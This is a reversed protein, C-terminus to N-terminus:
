TAQELKAFAAMHLLPAGTVSSVANVCLSCKVTLQEAISLEIQFL